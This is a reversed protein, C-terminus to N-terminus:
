AFAFSGGAINEISRINLGFYPLRTTTGTFAGSNNIRQGYQWNTGLMTMKRFDANGTGFDIYKIRINNATTARVAVAYDTNALLTYPTILPARVPTDASSGTSGVRFGTFADTRQAVPTGLPDSYLILEFDDASAIDGIQAFIETCEAAFPLRFILAVEDPNANLNLGTNDVLQCGMYGPFWGYTGDDFIIHACPATSVKTPGSGTDGASYPFWSSNNGRAVTVSDAGGRTTMEIVFVVLDGHNLTKTGSEMTVVQVTSSALVDTGGVLDAYVDFNGDEVGTGAAYDQLGVRINTGANAFVTSVSTAWVIKGGGAASITKSGSGGEIFIRGIFSNSEGAADMTANSFSNVTAPHGIFPCIVAGVKNPFNTFAM